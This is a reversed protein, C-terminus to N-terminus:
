LDTETHHCIRCQKIQLAQTVMKSAQICINTMHCRAWKTTTHPLTKTYLLSPSISLIYLPTSSAIKPMSSTGSTTTPIVLPTSDTTSTDLPPLLQLRM